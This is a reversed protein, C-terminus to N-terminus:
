EELLQFNKVTIVMGDETKSVTGTVKVRKGVNESLEFSKDDEGLIYIEGNESELEYDESVTGVITMSQESLAPGALAVLFCLAMIGIALRKM